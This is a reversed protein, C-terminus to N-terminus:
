LYDIKNRYKLLMCKSTLILYKDVKFSKAIEQKRELYINVITSLKRAVM